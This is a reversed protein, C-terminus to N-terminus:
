IKKNTRILNIRAVSAWDGGDQRMFMLDSSWLIYKGSLEIFDQVYTIFKVVDGINMLNLIRLNRELNLSVTALDSMARGYKANFQNPLYDYGTDDQYYGIRNTKSIDPDTQVKKNKHILGFEASVEDLDQEIIFSLTDRPKVIHRLIPAYAAYKSNATYDSTITDYTYFNHGDVCKKIIETNDMGETLQYVTFTQSKVMKKTLNKIYVKNDFQCFVASTGYHLGFRQDLYGDYSDNSNPNYEKIIKYFTTPPICVQDIIDLNEGETDFIVTTQVDKAILEIVEKVTRGGFVGNVITQMAKFPKRCVTPITITTREKQLNELQPNRIPIEYESTVYMLEFDIQEVLQEDQELLRITLYIPEDGLLDELIIDAPDLYLQLIVIQYATSLSSVVRVSYIDGSYDLNKIKCQIDYNRTPTYKREQEPM